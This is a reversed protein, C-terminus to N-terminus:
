DELHKMAERRSLAHLPTAKVFKKVARPDTRAYQRLSWGIAKNIFFERSGLNERIIECLLEFDTQDKHNLQFLIATRRLWINESRRWRTLYKKKAKPHRKFQTGVASAALSDVTDWWSRTVILHEITGVFDPPVQAQVRGLVGIAAYQYERQPLVWLERLIADLDAMEPLGAAAFFEKQLAVRAPTKIGLYEFQGRMYKKMAPAEIPDAHSELRAKLAVVYPHM